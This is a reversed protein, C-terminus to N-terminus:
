QGGILEIPSIPVPMFCLVFIVVLLLALGIRVPDLSLEDDVSAPHEWGVLRIIVLLVVLWVVWSYAQLWVIFFALMALGAITLWRSHRRIAAYAIHGGDLQSIPVLNMMTFLLGLWGAMATPHLNLSWGDRVPGAMAHSLWQFLLPEGMWYGGGLQDPLKQVPSWALGCALAIVAVVFGALPGGAAFDFLVRRNPFHGRFVIVAGLSGTLPIPAPIYFPLSPHLGHWRAAFYHGFEHASLFGLFPVSFWLGDRALEPWSMHLSNASIGQWGFVLEARTFGLAFSFYHLGGAATCTLVTLLFLGLHRNM